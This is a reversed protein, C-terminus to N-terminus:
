QGLREPRLGVELVRTPVAHLVPFRQLIKLPWPAVVPADATLVM